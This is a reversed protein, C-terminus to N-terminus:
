VDLRYDITKTHKRLNCTRCLPQINDISNSGGRSLPTIHDPTLPKVEGCCLCLHHYKACLEDWERKTHSTASQQIWARRRYKTQKRWHKMKARKEPNAMGDSHWKRKQSRYKDTQHRARDINGYGNHYRKRAQDKIHTYIVPDLERARARAKVDAQYDPNTHYRRNTLQKVKEKYSLETGYREKQRERKQKKRTDSRDNARCCEVCWPFLGDARSKDRRFDALPKTTNCKTCTKM